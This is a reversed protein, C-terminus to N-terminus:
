IGGVRRLFFVAFDAFVAFLALAAFADPLFDGAFVAERREPPVPPVGRRAAAPM